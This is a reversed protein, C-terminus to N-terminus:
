VLSVMEGGAGLPFLVPGITYRISKLITPSDHGFLSLLADTGFCGFRILGDLAWMLVTFLHQPSNCPIMPVVLIEVGARVSAFLLVQHPKSKTLGFLANMFEIGSIALAVLTRPRIISDCIDEDYKKQFLVYPLVRLWAVHIVLNGLFLVLQLQKRKEM